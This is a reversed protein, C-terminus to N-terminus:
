LVVKNNSSLWGPVFCTSKNLCFIFILIYHICSVDRHHFPWLPFSWWIDDTNQMDSLMLMYIILIIVKHFKKLGLVQWRKTFYHPFSIGIHKTSDNIWNIYVLFRFINSKTEKNKKWKTKNVKNSTKSM